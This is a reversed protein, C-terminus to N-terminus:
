GSQREDPVEKGGSRKLVRAHAKLNAIAREPALTANNLRRAGAVILGGGSVIAVLATVLSAWVPGLAPALAAIVAGLLAIGAIGCIIGGALIIAMSVLLKRINGRIEAAALNFETSVLNQSDSILSDLLSFLGPKPEPPPVTESDASASAPESPAEKM